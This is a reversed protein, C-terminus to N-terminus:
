PGPSGPTCRRRCFNQPILDACRFLPVGRFVNSGGLSTKVCSKCAANCGSPATDMCTCRPPLSRTCTGCTDCCPWAGAATTADDKGHEGIEHGKSQALPLAALVALAALAVLLVHPRM